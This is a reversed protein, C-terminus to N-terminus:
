AAGRKAAQPKAGRPPRKTKRRPIPGAYWAPFPVASGTASQIRLASAGDPRIKGALWLSVSGKSVGVRAAFESQDLGTDDLYKRLLNRADM